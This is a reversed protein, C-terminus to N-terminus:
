NVQSALVQVQDVLVQDVKNLVKIEVQVKNLDVLFKRLDLLRGSYVLSLNIALDHDVPIRVKLGHKGRIIVYKM